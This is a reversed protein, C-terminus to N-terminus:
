KYNIPDMMCKQYEAKGQDGKLGKAKVRDGCNRHMQCRGNCTGGAFSLEPEIMIIGTGILGLVGIKIASRVFSQEFM